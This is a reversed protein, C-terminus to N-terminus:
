CGVYGTVMTVINEAGRGALRGPLTQEESVHVNVLAVGDLHVQEIGLHLVVDYIPRM